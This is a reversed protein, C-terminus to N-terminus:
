GCEAVARYVAENSVFEVIIKDTFIDLFPKIKKLAEKKLDSRELDQTFVGDIKIADIAVSESLLPDISSYESGFDDLYIKYGERRIAALASKVYDCYLTKENLEIAIFESLGPNKRASDILYRDVGLRMEKETINISYYCGESKKAFRYATDVLNEYFIPLGNKEFVWMFEAPSVIRDDIYLRSLIEYGEVREKSICYIPQTYYAIRGNVIASLIKEEEKVFALPM